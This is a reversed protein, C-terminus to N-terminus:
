DQKGKGNAEEDCHQITHYIFAHLVAQIEPVKRHLKVRIYLMRNGKRDTEYSFIGGLLFFEAPFDERRLSNTLSENNFRMARKLMDFAQDVDLKQRLLFRSLYWDDRECKEVDKQSYVGENTHCENLIKFRLETVLHSYDFDPMDRELTHVASCKYEKKDSLSNSEDNEVQKNHAEEFVDGELSTQHNNNDITNSVVNNLLHDTNDLLRKQDILQVATTAM